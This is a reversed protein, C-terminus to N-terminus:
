RSGAASSKWILATVFAVTKPQGKAKEAGPQLGHLPSSKLGEPLCPDVEPYQSYTNGSRHTQGSM